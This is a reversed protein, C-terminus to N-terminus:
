SSAYCAQWEEETTLVGKKSAVLGSMDFRERDWGVFVFQLTLWDWEYPSRYSFNTTLDRWWGRRMRQLGHELPIFKRLWRPARWWRLERGREGTLGGFGWLRAGPPLIGEEGKGLYKAMYGVANRARQVRTFGHTWYGADDLNPLFIQGSVWLAVHYHPLGSKTLELKWVYGCERGMDRRLHKAVLRNIFAVVQGPSWAESPRYTLTIFFMSYDSDQFQEDM